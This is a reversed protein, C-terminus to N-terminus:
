FHDRLYYAEKFHAEQVFGAKLLVAGSAKNRPDIHAEISHLKMETFGYDVVKQIAEYMIGKGQFAPELMYGIEARYHEKMIRWLAVNGISQSPDDKMCICWSIGETKQLNEAVMNIWGEAEEITQLLPRNIYKMVDVNSRLRQVAPADALVLERLLLRDTKLEPFPTFNLSLM